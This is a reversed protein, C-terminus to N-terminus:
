VRAVRPDRPDHPWVGQAGSPHAIGHQAHSRPGKLSLREIAASGGASASAALQLERGGDNNMAKPPGCARVEEKITAPQQAHCAQCALGGL